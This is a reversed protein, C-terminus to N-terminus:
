HKIKPQKKHLELFARFFCFCAENVSTRKPSITAPFKGRMLVLIFPVLTLAAVLFVLGYREEDDLLIGVIIPALVLAINGATLFATRMRGTSGEDTVTAELLLDLQYAIFPSVACALAALLVALLPTPNAALALLILMELVALFIGLKQPGYKRVLRPLTPFVILTVVAGLSVALGSVAAPMLTALYPALIYIILFFHAASFFNGISLVAIRRM